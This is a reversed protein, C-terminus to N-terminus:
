GALEGAADKLERLRAVQAGVDQTMEGVTVHSVGLENLRSLHQRWEAPGGEEVNISAQVGVKAPDRGAERVMAKFSEIRPAPDIGAPFFGIFGDAIRAVRRLAVDAGAGMWIPIPRQVPLPNIGANDIRHYRGKFDVLEQTWLLRMLEIQEEARKGRNHFQENLAEFEVVNWGLGLGLRLRGKSLVDVEAAQKAFLVTQRQPLIIIGSTFEIRQTVGALYALVTLPEHFPTKYTFPASWGPRTAPDVGVVHEYVLIYDYGLGEVAQAFDRLRDPDDVTAAHPLTVGIKM